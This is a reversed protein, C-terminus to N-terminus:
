DNTKKIFFLHIKFFYLTLLYVMAAIIISSFLTLIKVMVSHSYYFNHFFYDSIFLVGMMVFASIFIKYVCERTKINIKFNGQSKAYKNLLWVNYWAAISSGIAIGIHDFPIMLAINLFTNVVLSYFTIRMPTKLTMKPDNKLFDAM